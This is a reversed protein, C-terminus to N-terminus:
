RQVQLIYGLGLLIVQESTITPQRTKLRLHHPEVM